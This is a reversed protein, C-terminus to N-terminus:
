YYTGSKAAAHMTDARSLFNHNESFLPQLKADRDHLLCQDKTPFVFAGTRLKRQNRQTTVSIVMRIVSKIRQSIESMVKQSVGVSLATLIPIVGLTILLMSQVSQTQDM